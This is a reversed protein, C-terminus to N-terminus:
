RARGPKDENPTAAQDTEAEVISAFEALSGFGAAHLEVSGDGRGISLNALLAKAMRLGRGVFEGVADDPGPHELAERGLKVLSELTRAMPETAEGGCVSLAHVAIADADDVGIVWRDVGKFLSLMVADDPRGLDYAKAFVGDENNIAVALLGRSARDWEPGSLYAPVGPGAKRVLKQIAAEEDFVITRDDPLYACPNPGLATRLPGVIKQYVGGPERVEAFELRWVRLYALWDFPRIARVTLGGFMLSHLFQGDANKQHTRGFGVGCTVWEIDDLGLMLREPKSEQVEKLTKLDDHLALVADDRIRRAFRDMGARRFTAAPRFAVLGVMNEPVYVPQIPGSSAPTTVGPTPKSGAGNVVRVSPDSPAGTM